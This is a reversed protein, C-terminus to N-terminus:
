KIVEELKPATEEAFAKIFGGLAPWFGSGGKGQNASSPQAFSQAPEYYGGFMDWEDWDAGEKQKLEEHSDINGKNGSTAGQIEEHFSKWIDLTKSFAPYAERLQAIKKKKEEPDEEAFIANIESTKVGIAKNFNEKDVLALCKEVFGEFSGDSKLFMATYDTIIEAAVRSRRFELYKEKTVNPHQAQVEPFKADVSELSRIANQVHQPQLDLLSQDEILESCITNLRDNEVLYRETFAHSMEHNIIHSFDLKFRNGDKNQFNDILAEKFVIIEGTTQDWCAVADYGIANIMECIKGKKEPKDKSDIVAGTIMQPIDSATFHGNIVSLCIAKKIEAQKGRVNSYEAKNEALKEIEQDFQSFMVSLQEMLEMTEDVNESFYDDKEFVAKKFLAFIDPDIEEPKDKFLYDLVIDADGEAATRARSQLVAEKTKPSMIIEPKDEGRERVPEGEADLIESPNQAELPQGNPGVIRSQPAEAPM